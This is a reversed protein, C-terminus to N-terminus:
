KIKLRKDRGGLDEKGSKWPCSNCTQGGDERGEVGEKMEDEEKEDEEWNVSHKRGIGWDQSLHHVIRDKGVIVNDLCGKGLLIWIM